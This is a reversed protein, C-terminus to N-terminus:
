AQVFATSPAMHPPGDKFAREQSTAFPLESSDIEFDRPASKEYKQPRLVFINHFRTEVSTWDGPTHEVVEHNM